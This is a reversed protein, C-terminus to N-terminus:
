DKNSMKYKKSLPRTAVELSIYNQQDCRQFIKSLLFTNLFLQGSNLNQQPEYVGRPTHPPLERYKIHYLRAAPIAGM